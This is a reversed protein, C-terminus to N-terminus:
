PWRRTLRRTLILAGIGWLALSVVTWALLPTLEGFEYRMHRTRLYRTAIALFYCSWYQIYLYSGVALAVLSVRAARRRVWGAALVLLGLYLGAGILIGGVGGVLLFSAKVDKEGAQALAPWAVLAAALPRCFRLNLFSRM